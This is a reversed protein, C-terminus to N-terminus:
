FLESQARTVKKPPYFVGIVTFPNAMRRQHFKLTTGVFLFIDKKELIEEEYKQRVMAKAVEEDGEAAALCNWYLAGIEWDEISLNSSRGDEDEFSYKFRYPVKQILRRGRRRSPFLDFLSVWDPRWERRDPEVKLGTIKDASGM